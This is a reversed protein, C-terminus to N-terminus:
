QLMALEAVTQKVAEPLPIPCSYTCSPSCALPCTADAVPKVTSSDHTDVLGTQGDAETEAPAAARRCDPPPM